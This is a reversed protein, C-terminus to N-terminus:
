EETDRMSVNFMFFNKTKKFSAKYLNESNKFLQRFGALKSKGIDIACIDM